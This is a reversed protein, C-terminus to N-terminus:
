LHKLVDDKRLDEPYVIQQDEDYHMHHISTEFTDELIDRVEEIHEETSLVDKHYMTVWPSFVGDGEWDTCLVNGNKLTFEEYEDERVAKAFRELKRKNKMM